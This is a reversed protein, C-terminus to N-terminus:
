PRLAAAVSQTHTALVKNTGKFLDATSAAESFGQARTPLKCAIGDGYVGYDTEYFSKAPVRQYVVEHWKTGYQPPLKGLLKSHKEQM